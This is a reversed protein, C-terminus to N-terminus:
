HGSEAAPAAPQSPGAPGQPVELSALIATVQEHLVAVAAQPHPNAKAAELSQAIAALNRKHRAREAHVQEDAVKIIRSVEAEAQSVPIMPVPAPRLKKYAYAGAVVGAAILGCTAIASLRSRNTKSSASIPAVDVSPSEFKEATVQPQDQDQTDTSVPAYLFCCNRWGLFPFLAPSGASKM